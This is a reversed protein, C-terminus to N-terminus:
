ADVAVKATRNRATLVLIGGIAVLAVAVRWM